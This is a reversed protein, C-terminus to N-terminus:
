RWVGDRELSKVKKGKKWKIKKYEYAIITNPSFQISSGSTHTLTMTGSSNQNELTLTGSYSGSQQEQGSILVWVSTIIRGKKYKKIKKRENKSLGNIRSIVDNNNLSYKALVFQGDLASSSCGNVSASNAGDTTHGELCLTNLQSSALNLVTDQTVHISRYKWFQRREYTPVKGVRGKKSGISALQASEAGARRYKVANVKIFNPKIKTAEYASIPQTTAILGFMTFGLVLNLINRKKM